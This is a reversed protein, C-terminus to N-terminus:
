FMVDLLFIESCKKHEEHVENKQFFKKFLFEVTKAYFLIQIQSAYFSIRFIKTSDTISM